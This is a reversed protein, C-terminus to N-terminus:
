VRLEPPLVKGPVGYEARVASLYEDIAAQRTTPDWGLVDGLLRAVEETAALGHDPDEIAIRTRRSLVDDLGLAHEKHVAWWAEVQLYPLGPVLPGLSGNQLGVQILDLSESGYRSVLHRASEGDIGSRRSVHAALGGLASPPVAGALPLHATPSPQVGSAGQTALDVAREAIKRYTTYKGGRVTVRGPEPEDILAERSIAATDSGSGVLPRIGAYTSIIDDTTLEVGLGRRLTDTLYTVEEGTATPRDVPGEHPVDTTGILWHTGWPVVFVVRGPVRLTLGSDSAIRSRPVVLHVGRSPRLAHSGPSRDDAEYAGTADIVVKAKLTHEAGNIRDTVRVGTVRGASRVWSTVECRTVVTAGHRSATRAVAVVYRADDMVGDTYEFAPRFRKRPLNPVRQRVRKASVLRTRGGRRGGLADYLILGAAFYPIEWGGNKVPVLFRELRVLHPAIKTALLHREALAEHVLRFQFHELYRLGGHILKSSRSSTGVGLDDRELLVTSLGRASADLAIGVGNIGGGVVVVDASASVASDLGTAREDLPSIM